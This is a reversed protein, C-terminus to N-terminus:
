FQFLFPEYERRRFLAEWNGRLGQDFENFYEQEAVVGNQSIKFSIYYDVTTQGRSIVYAQFALMFSVFGNGLVILIWTLFIVEKPVRLDWPTNQFSQLFPFSIMFLGYTSAMWGYLLFLFFYHHNNQGVCNRVWPCHHDM